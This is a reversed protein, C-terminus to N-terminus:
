GEKNRDRKGPPASSGRVILKAEFTSSAPEGEGSIMTLLTRAATVAIQRTPQDIATVPPDLLKFWPIDDFSAFSVDKPASLGAEKLAQLAGLAILNNGTFLATPPDASSLLEGTAEYGTRRRFDGIKVHDDSVPAGLERATALFADLRERSSHVRLPGTVIALREHGLHLLHRVLESVAARGDARVVPAEVSGVSRDLFVMPVGADAVERVQHSEPHAPSIILGDVRREMLVELYEREREVDEDTNGIIVSYGGERALDEVVRAVDTFFPNKVNPVVFGLTKTSMARLSRAPGNPRYGLRKIVSLVRVKTEETVPNTASLVRSVTATSVGAEQAVDKITTM